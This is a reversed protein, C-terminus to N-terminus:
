DKGNNKHRLREIPLTVHRHSEKDNTEQKTGAELKQVSRIHSLAESTPVDGESEDYLEFWPFGHEIYANVDIPTPPPNQGTVARYQESNFIHIFVSGSNELDWTDIGYPDPYIKQKVLGGAGLGMAPGAGSMSLPKPIGSGTAPPAHDPFRGQKPEYVDLQIGGVYETGGLQAEISYGQGLPMAVFQRVIGSGTKFGDLWPQDPCVLYNQPHAQLSATWGEGTLANRRGASIKVANPKWSVGGFGLWLAERQYMPICFHPERGLWTGALQGAVDRIDHVPLSGLGPPLPYAKGDDPVRVTRQFSISFREGVKVRSNELVINLM